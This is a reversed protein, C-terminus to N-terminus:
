QSFLNVFLGHINVVNMHHVQLLALLEDLGVIYLRKDGEQSLLLGLNRGGSDELLAACGDVFLAVRVIAALLDM